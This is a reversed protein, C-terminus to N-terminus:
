ALVLFGAALVMRESNHLGCKISVWMQLTTLMPAQRNMEVIVEQPSM